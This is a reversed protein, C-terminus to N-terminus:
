GGDRSEGVMWSETVVDERRSTSKRDAALIELHSADIEIVICRSGDRGLDGLCNRGSRLCHESIRRAHVTVPLLCLRNQVFGPRRNGLKKAGFGGFNNERGTTRFRVIQGNTAGSVSGYRVATPM